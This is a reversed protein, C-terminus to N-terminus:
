HAAADPKDRAHQSPQPGTDGRVHTALYAMMTALLAVTGLALSTIAFAHRAQSHGAPSALAFYLSGFAAVGIAGGIQLTTTSVGSIDPAYDTPVSNTVHGILTAFGTGLGLGGLALLVLLLLDGPQGTFLTISIALYAIALLLYGAFPLIPATRDPLRRTIQGALGFAAVWPILILGSALASRGLGQQLYQALSFLLAYYTGTALLLALLGLLVPPRSIIRTNVLPNGSSDAERRQIRLFVWFAPVSAALCVWTWAPWGASHGLILPVVVLLLTVSLTAVGVLDIQKANQQEDAPLFRRAALIGAACIPVNVLFVPRWSAGAIDALILVGGLIQGIVAGGALAIAFLAIARARQPGSFNLQIGTLAQPYMLAAGAGQAMRMIVLVTASPALGGVLSSVGFVGVGLLFLRKYGHTQGLRAGTILLVAFAVLYGGVVLEAAAGSVGLDARISPTAVNAITADAQALFPAMLLVALLWGPKHTGAESQLKVAEAPSRERHRGTMRGRESPTLSEIAM